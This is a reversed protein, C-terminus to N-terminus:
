PNKSEPEMAKRSRYNWDRVYFPKPLKKYLFYVFQGDGISLKAKVWILAMFRLINLRWLVLPKEKWQNWILGDKTVCTDPATSVKM